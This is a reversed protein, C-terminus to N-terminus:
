AAAGAEIPAAHRGAWVDCWDAGDTSPTLVECRLRATLARARLMHAAQRGAKDHDAFIVIRQVCAPWRWHALNGACYAAVTPVGSAMFAALATEIGEAIGICGRTPKHLPICAGALPGAAGSLKKPSPLDAKHGDETLYTRHLAVIRGDPAVVPAVMAPFTGLKAAGHWYPLAPHLRLLEPLPWAGDFGRRNLYMAVPDGPALPVCQARVQTIRHASNAWQQRQQAARESTAAKVQHALARRQERTMTANDFASWCESIGQRHCGFVGGRLDDFLRCWGALDGRKGNKGFRIFRGPDIGEPAYGITALMAIRFSQIVDNM